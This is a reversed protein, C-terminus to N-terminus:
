HRKEKITGKAIGRLWDALDQPDEEGESVDWLFQASTGLQGTPAGTLYGFTRMTDKIARPSAEEERLGVLSAMDKATHITSNVMQVLPSPVYDRGHIAAKAIDRVLPLSAPIEELAALSAWGLWTEDEDPGGTTWLAAAIGPLILYGASRALVKNFDNSTGKFGQERVKGALRYAIRGTDRQRNYMHNFYGYFLTIAKIFQSRNNQILARDVVDQAGHANRVVQEARYVADKESLGESQAKRFAGIWLPVASGMDFMAVGLHSYEVVQQYSEKLLSPDILKNFNPSLDRDYRNQRFRMEDSMSLVWNWMRATQQPTGYLEKYGQLSWKGEIEVSGNFFASMGHKFITGPNFGISAVVLNTRAKNLFRDLGQLARDNVNSSNATHQLWGRLAQTYEPGFSDNMGEIIRRDSLLKHANMVAERFALDHVLQNMKWPIFDLSLEVKETVGDLRAHVSGNRTTARFYDREFNIEESLAKKGSLINEYVLPFYKGEVKGFPTEVTRGEVFEIGVGTVRRQLADLQPGFKEFGAWVHSVFDWDAKTMNKDLFAKVDSEQWGFGRLLKIANDGTGWNLAISLMRKRTFQFPEGTEPNILGTEVRKDMRGHWEKPLNRQAERFTTEVVDALMRNKHHAAEKMPRFVYQSFPGDLKDSDMWLLLQEPKDLISDFSRFFSFSAAKKEALVGADEPRYFNSKKRQKLQSLADQMEVIITEKEVKQDGIRVLKQEQGLTEMSRILADLEKFQSFKLKYADGMGEALFPTIPLEAGNEFQKIAFQSLSEGALSRVLEDPDRRTKVSFRELVNHIQNTYSQDISKFTDKAGLREQLKLSQDVLDSAKKAQTYLINNLIQRQKAESAALWDKKLLADQVDRSAKREARLYQDYRAIEDVPKKELIADVEKRVVELMPKSVFMASRLKADIIKQENQSDKLISTIKQKLQAIESESTALTLQDILDNAVGEKDGKLGLRNLYRLEVSLLEAQSENHVAELAERQISEADLLDGHKENIKEDISQEILYQRIGRREGEQLRIERQQQELNKLANLMEETSTFGLLESIFEPHVGENSMVGRPLDTAMEKGYEKIVDSRSLKYQNKQYAPIDENGPLKSRTLLNLAQIDLRQDIEAAVSDYLANKEAKYEETRQRRVQKMTKDLMVTEAQHKAKEIMGLYSQWESSTMGSSERDRFIPELGQAKQADAIEEDTALMRDFIGRIEANIPVNLADVDKYLKTFWKKFRSFVGELVKSPAKGEMLYAEWARAFQEHQVTGIDEPKEVGFWKLTLALDSKLQAPAADLTADFILEELWAHAGEHVLTSANANKFLTIIKQGDQFRISGRPGQEEQRLEGPLIETIEGSQIKYNSAKYIELADVGLRQGRAGQRAAFLKASQTAEREPSGAEIAQRKVDEFVAQTTDPKEAEAIQDAVQKKIQGEYQQHFVKKENMSMGNAGIRIDALLKESVPTGALHTLYSATPIVVDGGAAEAERLQEPMNEVFGFLPDRARDSSPEIGLEQYYQRVKEASIYLNEVPSGETQKQMFDQFAAQDRTRLKSDVTGAELDKFLAMNSEAQRAAKVDHYLGVGQGAARLTGIMMAGNIAAHTLRDVIEDASTAFSGPSIAKAIEEGIVASGEFASMVVAGKAAGSITRTALGKIAKTFTPRTLAQQMARAALAEATQGFLKKEVAATANGLAYAAAGVFIAGFQKAPESLKEGDSGRIDNLRLYQNGAAVVAMDANFGIKSGAIAGALAGPIGGTAFGAVAGATAYNITGVIASDVAMGIFGSFDKVYGFGGNLQTQKSLQQDIEKIRRDSEPTEIDFLGSVAGSLQKLTGIRGRENGLVAGTVGQKLATWTKDIFGLNNFDDMAMRAALPNNAAWTAVGPNDDIIKKAQAVQVQQEMNVLNSEVAPQPVGTQKAIANSKAVADPNGGQATIVNATARAKEMDDLQDLIADYNVGRYSNSKEQKPASLAQDNDLQDLIADYDPM